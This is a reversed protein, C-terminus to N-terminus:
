GVIIVQESGSSKKKKRPKDQGAPTEGTDSKKQLRIEDGEQLGERVIIFDSNAEGTTIEVPDGDKNYVLTKNEQTIVADIPVSLVDDIEDIIIRCQATMGPKLREDFENMFIEIDFVNKKSRNDKNALAAITKVQGTFITDSVADLTIDVNQDVAVKSIDIEDIQVSVKMKSQTPIEMLAMGRWPSYGVKLKGWSGGEWVQKYVVLGDAESFITLKDIDDQAQQVNIRAQEVELQAQKLSAANIKESSEKREILQQYSIEAKKLSFEIEKQKNESEYIANKSQLKSQELSYKELEINSKLDATQSRINAVTQALNAEARELNNQAELLRQQYDSADFQILFDGKKVIEGEPVMRVIRVSGRIRPAKVVYSEMAKLEGDVDLDIVFTGREVQHILAISEGSFVSVILWILLLAALGSLIKQKRVIELFRSFLKFQM